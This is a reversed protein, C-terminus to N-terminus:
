DAVGFHLDFMFGVVKGMVKAREVRGSASNATRLHTSHETVYKYIYSKLCRIRETSEPM